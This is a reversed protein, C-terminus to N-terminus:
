SSKIYIPKLILTKLTRFFSSALFLLGGAIRNHNSIYSQFSFQRHGLVPVPIIYLLKIFHICSPINTSPLAPNLPFYGANVKAFSSILFQDSTLSLAPKVIYICRWFSLGSFHFYHLRFIM